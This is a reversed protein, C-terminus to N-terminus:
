LGVKASSTARNLISFYGPMIEALKAQGAATLSIERSRADDSSSAISILNASELSRLVRTVVPKSVDLRDAVEGAMLSSRDPERDIVVLTLFRLQSFGHDAFYAELERILLSAKRMLDLADMVNGVDVGEFRDSYGEVMQRSPLNKLFFM